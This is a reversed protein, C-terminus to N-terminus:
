VGADLTQADAIEGRPHLFIGGGGDVAGSQVSKGLEAENGDLNSKGVPRVVREVQNEEGFAGGSELFERETM